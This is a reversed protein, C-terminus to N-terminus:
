DEVEVLTTANITSLAADIEVSFDDVEKELEEIKKAISLPDIMEVKNAKYFTEKYEDRVKAIDSKNTLNQIQPTVMREFDNDVSQSTIDFVKQANSLEARMNSLLSKKFQINQREEIAESITYEKGAVTVTTAGNAKMLASRLKFKRKILDNVSQYDSLANSVFEDESMSSRSGVCNVLGLGRKVAILDLSAIGKNIRDDITKLESLIRHITLQEM